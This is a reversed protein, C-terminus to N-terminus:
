SQEQIKGKRYVQPSIGMAKKFVTGFYNASAFGTKEAIEKVTLETELLLKKAMDIRTQVVYKSFGNNMEKHFLKSLYSPTMNVREGVEELSLDYRTINEDIYACVKEIITHEKSKTKEDIAGRMRVCLDMFWDIIVPTSKDEFLIYNYPDLGGLLEDVNVGMDSAVHLVYVTLEVFMRRISTPHRGEVSDGSLARVKEAYATVLLRLREMDGVQFAELMLDPHIVSQLTSLNMMVHMDECFLCREGSYLSQYSLANVATKYSYSVDALSSVCKGVSVVVDPVMRAELYAILSVVVHEMTHKDVRDMALAICKGAYDPEISVRISGKDFFRRCLRPMDVCYRQYSEPDAVSRPCSVLLIRYQSSHLDVGNMAAIQHLQVDDMQLKEECLAKLFTNM